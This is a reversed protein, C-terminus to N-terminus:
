VRREESRGLLARAENVFPAAHTYDAAQVRARPLIALAALLAELGDDAGILHQEQVRALAPLVLVLRDFLDGLLQGELRCTAVRGRCLCASRDALIPANPTTTMAAVHDCGLTSCRHMRLINGSIRAGM